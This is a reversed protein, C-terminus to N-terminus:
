PNMRQSWQLAPYANKYSTNTCGQPLFVSLGGSKTIKIDIFDPTTQHYLVTKGSQAVFENLLAASMFTEAVSEMDFFVNDTGKVRRGYQQIGRTTGYSIGAGEAALFTAYVAALGEMQDSQILSIAGDRGNQGDYFQMYAQCIAPLDLEKKALVPVMYQYPFGVGMIETPSLIQYKSVNRLEYAVEATAMNCADFAIFDFVIDTEELIGRLEWIDLYDSGDPGYSLLGPIQSNGVKPLWGSGHSWFIIGKESSPFATFADKIIGQMIDPAVSSQEAYTKVVQKTVGGHQYTVKFLTPSLMNGQEDRSYNDQYVLMNLTTPVAEMGSMVAEINTEVFKNLDNDGVIYLLVTRDPTEVVEEIREIENKTCGLIFFCSLLFGFFVLRNSM